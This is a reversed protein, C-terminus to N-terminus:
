GKGGGLYFHRSGVGAAYPDEVLHNKDEPDKAYGYVAFNAICAGQRRKVELNTRM